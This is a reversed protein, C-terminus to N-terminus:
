LEAGSEGRVEGSSDGRLLFSLKAGVKYKVSGTYNVIEIGFISPPLLLFISLM